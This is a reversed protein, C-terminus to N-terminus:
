KPLLLSVSEKYAEFASSHAVTMVSLLVSKSPRASSGASAADSSTESLSDQAAFEMVAQQYRERTGIVPEMLSLLWIKKLIERDHLLNWAESYARFAKEFLFLNACASGKRMLVSGKLRLALAKEEEGALIRDYVAVARGFRRLRFLEDAKERLYEAQSLQRYSLMKGRFEGLEPGTLYGSLELLKLLLDDDKVRNEKLQRLEAALLREGAGEELFRFM